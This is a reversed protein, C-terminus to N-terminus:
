PSGAPQLSAAAFRSRSAYISAANRLSGSPPGSVLCLRKRSEVHVIELHESQGPQQADVGGSELPGKMLQAALIMWIVERSSRSGLFRLGYAHAGQQVISIARQPM